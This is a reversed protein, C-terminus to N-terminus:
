KKRSLKRMIKMAQYKTKETIDCKNEIRAICKIHDVVSIKIGLKFIVIRVNRIIDKCKINSAAPLIM